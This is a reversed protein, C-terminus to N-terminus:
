GAGENETASLGDRNSTKRTGAVKKAQKAGKNLLDETRTLTQFFKPMAPEVPDSVRAGCGCGCREEAAKQQATVIPATDASQGLSAVEEPPKTATEAAAATSSPGEDSGTSSKPLIAERVVPALTGPAAPPLRGFARPSPCPTKAVLDHILAPIGAAFCARRFETAPPRLRPPLPLLSTFPLSPSPASISPPRIALM